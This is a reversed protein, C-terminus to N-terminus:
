KTVHSAFELRCRRKANLHSNNNNNNNNNNIILEEALGSFFDAVTESTGTAEKYVLWSDVVIIGFISMGVRMSWEKTQLKKELQLDDQTYRNHRDIMACTSYYVEAAEPQPIQLEVREPESDPQQNVQRWKYRTYPTGQRLSSTTAIFYRRERDVWVFALVKPLGDDGRAILGKQQGRGGFEFRGLWDVPFKRTATKIVGIFKLGIQM